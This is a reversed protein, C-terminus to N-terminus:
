TETQVYHSSRARKVGLQLEKMYWEPTHPDFSWDVVFIGDYTYIFFREQDNCTRPVAHCGFLACLNDIETRTM